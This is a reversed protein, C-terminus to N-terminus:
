DKAILELLYEAPEAARRQKGRDRQKRQGDGDTRVGDDEAHDIANQQLWQGIRMRLLQDTNPVGGGADVDLVQVHRWRDEKDIALLVRRKLIDADVLAVGHVYGTCPLRLM